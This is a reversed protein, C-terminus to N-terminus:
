HTQHHTKSTFAATIVSRNMRLILMELTKGCPPVIMAVFLTDIDKFPPM